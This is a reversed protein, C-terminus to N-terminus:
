MIAIMGASREFDNLMLNFLNNHIGKFRLRIM